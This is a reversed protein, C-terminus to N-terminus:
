ITLFYNKVKFVFLPDIDRPIDNLLEIIEYYFIEGQIPLPSAYVERYTSKFTHLDIKNTNSLSERAKPDHIRISSYYNM